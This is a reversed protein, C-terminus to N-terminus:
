RRVWSSKAEAKATSRPQTSSISGWSTHRKVAAKAREYEIPGWANGSFQWAGFGIRSVKLDSRGLKVYEM